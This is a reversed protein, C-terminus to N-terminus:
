TKLPVSWREGTRLTPLIALFLQSVEQCGRLRTVRILSLYNEGTVTKTSAPKKGCNRAVLWLGPIFQLSIQRVLIQVWEKFNIWLVPKSPVHRTTYDSINTESIWLRTPLMTGFKYCILLMCYCILLMCYCVIVYLLMLLMCYCILLM